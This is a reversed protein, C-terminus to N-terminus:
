ATGDPVLVIKGVVSGSTLADMAARVDGLGYTAHVHPRLGQDGALVALTQLDASRVRSMLMVYRQRGPLMRLANRMPAGFGGTWQGGGERGVFVITGAPGVLERLRDLPTGGAIDLVADYRMREGALEDTAYDLVRGAGWSRVADAKAASCVATVSAGRLRAILVALSGVGGSAGIVLVSSAEGVRAADLAQVATCGSVGLAAAESPTVSAPRRVLTEVRAIAYEAFSGRATGFVPDGVAFATVGPGVAAVVGAVDLGPVQNRPRRLGLGLRAIRPLGTMVHWTGRDLAAAEVRVLVERAAPAPVAMTQPSLVETGGYGDQRVGRMHDM